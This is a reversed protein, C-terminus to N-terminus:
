RTSGAFLERAKGALKEREIKANHRKDVPFKPLPAIHEILATHANAEGLERLEADIKDSYKEGDELEVFVVPIQPAVPKGGASDGIWTLAARRVSAHQEFIAEVPVSWLTGNKTEVRHTKRGCFWLNDDADLYGVDGMRHLIRGDEDRIKAKATHEPRQDYVETAVLGKACIEGVEGREVLLSDDWNEIPADTVKIIRVEMWPSIEGVCTGAGQHTKEATNELINRGSIHAVPLSETAGYPTFMDGAPVAPLLRELLSPQVAAGSAFLARVRPLEAKESAVHRSFTEWLAPSGFASQAHFHDFAELLHKPNAKAPKRFDMQPFVVSMGTAVAYLAFGPFCAVHTEGPGFGGVQAVGNVQGGIMPHTYVVGKPVGTSGSTYVIVAPEKEAPQHREFPQSRTADPLAHVMPWIGKAGFFWKGDTVVNISCVPFAKRFVLRLGHAKKVGVLARLKQEEICAIANKAGMGPDILVPVAGLKQLSYVATVFDIGDTIFVGARDHAGLGEKAFAHAWLDIREALTKFTVKEFAAEGSGTKGSPRALAIADPQVEAWHDIFQPGSFGPASPNLDAVFPLDHSGRAVSPAGVTAAANDVHAGNVPPVPADGPDHASRTELTVM